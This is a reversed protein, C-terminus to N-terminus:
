HTGLKKACDASPRFDAPLPRRRALYLGATRAEALCDHLRYFSELHALNRLPNNGTWALNRWAWEALDLRGATQATRAYRVLFPTVSPFKEISRTLVEMASAKRGLKTLLDALMLHLAADDPQLAMAQQLHPLAELPQGRNTFTTALALHLQLPNPVKTIAQQLLRPADPASTPCTLRLSAPYWWEPAAASAKAYELCAAGLYGQKWLRDARKLSSRSVEIPDHGQAAVTSAGLLVTITAILFPLPSVRM